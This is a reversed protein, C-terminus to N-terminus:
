GALPWAEITCSLPPRGGRAPCRLTGWAALSARAWEAISGFVRGYSPDFIRDGVRVVVHDGDEFWGPPSPQPGQGNYRGPSPLEYWMEEQLVRPEKGRLDVRYVFPPSGNAFRWPKVLMMNARRDVIGKWGPEAEVTESIAGIGQLALLSAFLPGWAGCRGGLNVGDTLLQQTRNEPCTPDGQPPAQYRLSISKELTWTDSRSWYFMPRDARVDGKATVLTRSKVALNRFPRFVGGVLGDTSSSGEAETAALDVLSLFPRPTVRAVVWRSEPRGNVVVVKPRMEGYEVSRALLTYATVDTTGAPNRRGNREVLTWDIRLRWARVDAPVSGRVVIGSVRLESCGKPKVGRREFTITGGTPLKSHGLVTLVGLRRCGSRQRFRVEALKPTKGRVFAVPWSKEQTGDGDCDLWVARRDDSCGVPAAQDVRQPPLDRRDVVLAAGDVFPGGGPGTDWIANVFTLSSVRPGCSGPGSSCGGISVDLSNGVRAEYTRRAGDVDAPFVHTWSWTRDTRLSGGQALDVTGGPPTQVYDVYDAPASQLGVAVAGACGPDDSSRATEKLRGGYLAVQLTEASPDHTAFFAPPGAPDFTLEVTCTRTPGDAKERYVVDYRISLSVQAFRRQGSSYVTPDRFLGGWTGSWSYRWQARRVYSAPAKQPVATDRLESSGAVTISVPTTDSPVAAVAEPGAAGAIALFAGAAISARRM